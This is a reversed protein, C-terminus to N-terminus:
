VRRSEQHDSPLFRAVFLAAATAPDDSRVKWGMTYQGGRQIATVRILGAQIVGGFKIEVARTTPRPAPERGFLRLWLQRFRPNV